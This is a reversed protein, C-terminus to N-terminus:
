VEPFAYEAFKNDCFRVEYPYCETVNGDEYEIIALTSKLYGSPVDVDITRVARGGIHLEAKEEWRHFLAKRGKVICPRYESNFITIKGNIGAM